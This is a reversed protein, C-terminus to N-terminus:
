AGREKPSPSPTLNKKLLQFRSDTIIKHASGRCVLIEVIILALLGFHYDFGNEYFVFCLLM